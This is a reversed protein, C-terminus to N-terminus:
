NDEDLIVRLIEQIAEKSKSIERFKIDEVLNSSELRKAYEAIKREDNENIIPTKGLPIKKENMTGGVLILPSENVRFNIATDYKRSTYIWM